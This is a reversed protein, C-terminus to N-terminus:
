WLVFKLGMDKAWRLMFAEAKGGVRCNNKGKFQVIQLHKRVEITATRKGGVTLSWISCLNNYCDITYSAVCHNMIEGERTLAAPHRLRHISYGEFAGHGHYVNRLPTDPFPFLMIDRQLVALQEQWQNLQKLVDNAEPVDFFLMPRGLRKQVFPRINENIRILPFQMFNLIDRQNQYSIESQHRILFRIGQLFYAEDKSKHAPLVWAIREALDTRAGMLLAQVYRLAFPLIYGTSAAYLKGNMEALMKAVPMPLQSAVEPDTATQVLWAAVEPPADQQVLVQLRELQHNKLPALALVQRRFSDYLVDHNCSRPPQWNRLTLLRNPRECYLAFTLLLMPNKLMGLRVSKRRLAGPIALSNNPVLAKAVAEARDNKYRSKARRLAEQEQARM